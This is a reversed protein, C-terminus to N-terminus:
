SHQPAAESIKDRGDAADGTVIPLVVTFTSGEGPASELLIRGAHAEVIRKVLSLGLGAGQIQAAVVGPARYFPDFIKAQDGPAIGMGRDSVRVEVHGGARAARIGIWGGGAGYKLANGVLNQFVRRLAAEDGAVAPLDDGLSLEIAVDADRAQPEAAAVVERLLGAVEVPQPALRRQGSQLGAYELIQEVLDSLRVGERRVLAGYQRIRAEDAVVGDALNDAASRIVALPTRLEHSVTAVFELQQRALDQARRTSVVLFGVSIGLIGLISSSVILNRRRVANVARELSGSPHKVLLRWAPQSGQLTLRTGASSAAGAVLKDVRQQVVAPNNSQVVISMPASKITVNTHPTGTVEGRIITGTRAAGPAALATFTTFRSVEAVLPEFDKMRVQFLDVKADVPTDPTPSFDAVSRYLPATASPSVVAVQYDFGDGTGQFHQQALAPLMEGDIYGKDFVVVTTRPEAAMNMTAGGGQEPRGDSLVETHTVMWMPSPVVIAPIAPWVMPVAARFLFTGRTSAGGRDARELVFDRALVKRIEGLAEPWEAPELFRTSVNLRQIQAPHDPANPPVLYVDKIMRPFRATAQWRDYRALLGAAPGQEPHMPDLQFLLYARTVERDVDQAFGNARQNLTSTMREREAGSIQGLWKYQLTALLAILGLLAAAIAFM